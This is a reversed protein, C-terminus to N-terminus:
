LTRARSITEAANGPDNGGTRWGHLRDLVGNEDTVGSIRRLLNLYGQARTMRGDLIALIKQWLASILGKANQV